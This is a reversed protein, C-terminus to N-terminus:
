LRNPALEDHWVGDELVPYTTSSVNFPRPEGDGTVLLIEGEIIGTHNETAERAFTTFAEAAADADDYEIAVSGDTDVITSLAADDLSPFTRGWNQSGGGNVAAFVVFGTGLREAVTAALSTLDHATLAAPM